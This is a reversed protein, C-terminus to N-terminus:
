LLVGFFGLGLLVFVGVAVLTAGTKTPLRNVAIMIAGVMLALGGIINQYDAIDLQSVTFWWPSSADEPDTFIQFVFGERGSPNTMLFEVSKIQSVGRINIDIADANFYKLYGDGAVESWYTDFYTLETQTTNIFIEGKPNTKGLDNAQPMWINFRIPIPDELDFNTFNVYVLNGFSFLNIGHENYILENNYKATDFGTLFDMRFGFYDNINTGNETLNGVYEYVGNWYFKYILGDNKQITYNDRHTGVYIRNDNPNFYRRVIHSGIPYYRLREISDDVFHYYPTYNRLDTLNDYTYFHHEVDTTSDNLARVYAFKTGNWEYYAYDYVDTFNTIDTASEIETNTWNLLDESIIMNRVPYSSGSENFVWAFYHTENMRYIDGIKDDDAGGDYVTKSYELGGSLNMQYGNIENTSANRLYVFWHTSTRFSIPDNNDVGYGVDDWIDGWRASEESDENYAFFDLTNWLRLNQVDSDFQFSEWVEGNRFMRYCNREHVISPSSRELDIFSVNPTFPVSIFSVNDNYYNGMSFDHDSLDEFDYPDESASGNPINSVILCMLVLSVLAIRKM